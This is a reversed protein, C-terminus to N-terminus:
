FWLTVAATVGFETAKVDAESDPLPEDRDVKSGGGIGIDLTPAVLIAVHPVPAIVLPVELTLATVSATTEDNPDENESNSSRLWTFGARPWLGVAPQFMFAYGIRPALLFGSLTPGDLEQSAANSESEISSSDTFFGLAAGISLGDTVFYDAGIRPTSYLPGITGDGSLLLSLTTGSLSASTDNDENEAKTSTHVLGFLREASVAFTGVKGFREQAFAPTTTFLGALVIALRSRM